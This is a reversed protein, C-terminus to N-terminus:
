PLEPSNSLLDAALRMGLPRGTSLTAADLRAVIDRAAEFSREIRTVLWPILAPPPALQRDSFLKLLLASLLADDPPELKATPTGVLRSALDPLGMPWTSPDGDGTILLPHGHALTLNHLHFAAEEAARDSAILHMDEVVLATGMPPADGLTGAQLIQAGTEAAWVHALHTKGSGPPGILILKGLPWDRWGDLATVALANAPSIFFADRDRAPRTTLNFVLQEPM